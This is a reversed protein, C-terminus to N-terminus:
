REIRVVTRQVNTELRWMPATWLGSSAKGLECTARGYLDTGRWSRAAERSCDATMRAISAQRM